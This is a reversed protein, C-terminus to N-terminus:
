EVGVGKFSVRCNSKSCSKIESYSCYPQAFIILPLFLISSRELFDRDLLFIQYFVGVTVLIAESKTRGCIYNPLIQVM